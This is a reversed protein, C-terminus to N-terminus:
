VLVRLDGSAVKYTQLLWWKVMGHPHAKFRLRKSTEKKVLSVFGTM